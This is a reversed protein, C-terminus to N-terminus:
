LKLNKSLYVRLPCKCYWRVRSFCAFTCHAPDEELCKLTSEMGVDEAACLVRLGSAVCTFDKPCHMDGLLHKIALRDRERM